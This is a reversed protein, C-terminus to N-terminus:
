RGPKRPNRRHRLRSIKLGTIRDADNARPRSPREEGDFEQTAGAGEAEVELYVDVVALVECALARGTAVHAGPSNARTKNLLYLAGRGCGDRAFDDVVLDFAVGNVILIRVRAKLVFRRLLNVADIAASARDASFVRVARAAEILEQEILCDLEARSVDRLADVINVYGGREFTARHQM